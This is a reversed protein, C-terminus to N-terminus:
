QNEDETLPIRADHQAKEKAGPRLLWLAVSMFFAFFFLLGILGANASAFTTFASM